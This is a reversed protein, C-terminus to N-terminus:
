RWREREDIAIVIWSHGPVPEGSCSEKREPLPDHRVTVRWCRGDVHRVETMLQALNDFAVGPRVPVARDDRVWLADLSNAAREEILTRVAAEAAQLPQPFASRGRYDVPIIEGRSAEALIDVARQTDLRGWVAGHPLTLATPAFRHGGLHSCEWVAARSEPPLSEHVSRLLARGHVACCQDRGSHTCIFLMPEAVKTGIAPLQGNAMAAFDWTLLDRLDTVIGHRMWCDGPSTHVVWVNRETLDRDARDPHRALLVTTGTGASREVLEAGLGEPLGAELLAQSGWAGPQEIIVWCQALQATGIMTESLASSIESCPSSPDFDARASM